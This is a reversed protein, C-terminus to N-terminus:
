NGRWARKFRQWFSVNSDANTGAASADDESVEAEPDTVTGELLAIRTEASYRLGQETKIIAQLEEIQKDKASLQEQLIAILQQETTPTSEAKREKFQEVAETRLMTRQRGKVTIKEVYPSLKDTKILQYIYQVSVGTADALQKPTLYQNEM